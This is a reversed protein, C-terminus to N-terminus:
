NIWKVNTKARDLHEGNADEFSLLLFFLVYLSFVAIVSIDREHLSSPAM